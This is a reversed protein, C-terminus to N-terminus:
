KWYGSLGGGDKGGDKEQGEYWLEVLAWIMLLQVLLLWQGSMWRLNGGVFTVMTTVLWLWKALDIRRFPKKQWSRISYTLISLISGMLMLEGWLPWQMIRFFVGIALIPLPGLVYLAHLSKFTTGNAALLVISLLFASGGSVRMITRLSPINAEMVHLLICLLTVGVLAFIVILLNNNLAKM